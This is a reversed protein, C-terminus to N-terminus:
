YPEWHYMDTYFNYVCRCRRFGGNFQDNCCRTAEPTHCRDGLWPHNGIDEGQNDPDTGAFRYLSASPADHRLHKAV